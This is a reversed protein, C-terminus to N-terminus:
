LSIMVRDVKTHRTTPEQQTMAIPRICKGVVSTSALTLCKMLSTRFVCAPFAESVELGCFPVDRGAGGGKTPSNSRDINIIIASRPIHDPETETTYSRGDDPDRQSRSLSRTDLELIESLLPRAITYLQLLCPPILDM